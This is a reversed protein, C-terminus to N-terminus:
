GYCVIGNDSQEGHWYLPKGCGSCKKSEEVDSSNVININNFNIASASTKYDM